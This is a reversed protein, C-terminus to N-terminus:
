GLRKQAPSEWVAMPLDTCLQVVLLELAVAEGTVKDAIGKLTLDCNHLAEMARTLRPWSFANAQGVRRSILWRKRAFQNLVNKREDQPLLKVTEEDADEGARWGRELLVKTQWIERVAQAVMGLIHEPRARKGRLLARLAATARAAQQGAVANVLRFIDDEILRPTVEDVDASSIAERKGVFLALKEVELELEALGTGVKQEALKRAASPALKKGLAKAQAAAWAAAQDVNFAPCEIAVGHEEITRQLSARMARRRGREAAGTTVLIVSVQAPLHGVGRALAEQEQGEIREARHVVIVRAGGFLAGTQCRTLLDSAKLDQGDLVEWSVEDGAGGAAAAEARMRALAERKLHDEAGSLLCWSGLCTAKKSRIYQNYTLRVESEWRIVWHPAGL